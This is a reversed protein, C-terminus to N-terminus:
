RALHGAGTALQKGGARGVADPPTPENDAGELMRAILGMQTYMGTFRGAARRAVVRLGSIQWPPPDVTATKGM